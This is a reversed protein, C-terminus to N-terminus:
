GSIPMKVMGRWDLAKAGATHRIKWHSEDTNFRQETEIHPGSVNEELLGLEITDIQASDAALYHATAPLRPEVVLELNSIWEATSKETTMRRSANALVTEAATEFDPAVIWFRPVLSLYGGGVATQKRLLARASSLADSTVGAASTLNKHDTHFLAKTDNMTPGAAANLAFLNYVTDAELRRAAQGLAPQVRLFAGLNDNVLVEWTLAVIRGFKEVKYGTGDDLFNGHTYEGGELVKKLEPASGLIPRKSERFDVFPAVRVWLRHTAPESEYGNRIAGHLAGELIAPFDSTTNAARKLIEPSRAEGGFWRAGSKGARSLCMRALDYVSASVDRAAAHPKEVRIGARLLLSDVAARHFDQALDDGPVIPPATLEAAGLHSTIQTQEDRAALRDLIFARAQELPTGRAILDDALGAGGLSEAHRTVLTRIETVRARETRTALEAAARTAEDAAPPAPSSPTQPEMHASRNIGVTTDAPVPVISVEYPTWRRATIRKAKEDREEREISYGISLGTVIGDAIDASLELARASSGLVLEGRLRTGDLKLNQVIGVNVRSRDHGELVPLPARSLDVADRAHSLIEQWAGDWSRRTVPTESSVSVPFRRAAAAEKREREDLDIRIERTLM